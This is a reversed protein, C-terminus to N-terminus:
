GIRALRNPQPPPAMPLLCAAVGARLQKLQGIRGAHVNPDYAVINYGKEYDSPFPNGETPLHDVLGNPCAFLFRYGRELLWSLPTWPQYGFALEWPAFVEILMLPHQGTNFLEAAGRLVFLEAGEVDIKIFDPVRSGTSALFGDITTLLVPYSRIQAAGQVSAWRSADAISGMGFVGDPVSVAAQKESDALGCPITVIPAKLTTDHQVIRCLECYMPWVPEFATVLGSEGALKALLLSVEGVNAGVDFCADGPRILAHYLQEEFSNARPVERRASPRRGLLERAARKLRTV